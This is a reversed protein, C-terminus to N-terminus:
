LEPRVPAFTHTSKVERSGSRACHQRTRKKRARSKARWIRTFEDYFAKQRHQPQKRKCKQELNKQQDAINSNHQQATICFVFLCRWPTQCVLFGSCSCSSRPFHENDGPPSRGGFGTAHRTSKREPQRRDAIGPNCRIHIQVSCHACTRTRIAVDNSVYSLLCVCGQHM